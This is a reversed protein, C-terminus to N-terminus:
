RVSNDHDKTKNLFKINWLVHFDFFTMYSMQM